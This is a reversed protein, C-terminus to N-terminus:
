TTLSEPVLREVSGGVLEERPYGFMEEALRNVAVIGGGGDTVVIADPASELFLGLDVGVAPGVAEAVGSAAPTETGPSSTARAPPSGPSATENM